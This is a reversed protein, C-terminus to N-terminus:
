VVIRGKWAQVIKVDIQDLIGTGPKVQLQSDIIESPIFGLDQMQTKVSELIKPLEEEPVIGQGIVKILKM